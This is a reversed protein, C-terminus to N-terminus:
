MLQAWAILVTADVKNKEFLSINEIENKLEEVDLQAGDVVKMRRAGLDYQDGRQDVIDVVVM